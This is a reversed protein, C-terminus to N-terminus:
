FKHRMAYCAHNWLYMGDQYVNIGWLIRCNEKAQEHTGVFDEISFAVHYPGAQTREYDEAPVHDHFLLRLSGHRDWGFGSETKCRMKVLKECIPKSLFKM